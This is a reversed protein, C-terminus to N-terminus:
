TIVHLFYIQQIQQLRRNTIDYDTNQVRYTTLKNMKKHRHSQRGSYTMGDKVNSSLINQQTGFRVIVQDDPRIDCPIARTIMHECLCKM